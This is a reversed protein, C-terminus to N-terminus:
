IRKYVDLKFISYLWNKGEITTLYRYSNWEDKFKKNESFYDLYDFNTFAGNFVSNNKRVDVFILDPKHVHLDDVVINLFFLKDKNNKIYDRVTKDGQAHIQDVLGRVGWLCDFRQWAYSNTYDILPSAYDTRDSFVYISQHPPQTNIFAM